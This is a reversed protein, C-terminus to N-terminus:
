KKIRIARLERNYIRDFSRRESEDYFRYVGIVEDSERAEAASRLIGEYYRRDEPSLGGAFTALPENGALVKGDTIKVNTYSNKIEKSTGRSWEEFQRRSMSVLNKYVERKSHNTLARDLYPLKTPGDDDSFGIKELEARHTVFAEGIYVWNYLNARSMGTDEVLQDIYEGFKRFGLDIYLGAVNLRYLAIGMALISLKIGRITERIGVDVEEPKDSYAFDLRFQGAEIQKQPKRPGIYENKITLKEM